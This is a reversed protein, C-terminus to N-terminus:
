AQEHAKWDDIVEQYWELFDNVQRNLDFRHAAKVAEEGFGNRLGEDELLQALRAAMAGGDGRPVLFGTRGDEVIESIGGVATAIVPVGCALAEVVTKGFSEAFAAHIYVDAAQYYMALREQDYEFAVYRIHGRGLRRDRGEKGLCVFVLEADEAEVKLQDLAAEMTLYDKYQNHVVMLVIKAELPLGLVRRAEQKNRPRFITLDIGNPIVRHEVGRLVSQQAMEGLWKSPATIYLRSKAYIDRKRLWNAATEDRPIAPYSTLDPCKGCGIRWRQCDIPHACHGTLLWADRLNLIVPLQHSLWPLARLDFYGGHLNHCHVVDPLEPTLELLRWTGPFDFDEQGGALYRRLLNHLRRVAHVRNALLWLKAWPSRCAYNPILLVDPDDSRKSGAALWSKHGRSRYSRFLYWASNAAGGGQDDHSVQLISLRRKM